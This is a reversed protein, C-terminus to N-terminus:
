LEEKEDALLSQELKQRNYQLCYWGGLRLLEDHTGSELVQGDELVIIQHAHSVASLRHTAILTTRGERTRRIQQLIAQETRADVASLADDLILIEPDILLARAIGIRQKQGGSLSVGNEGIITDLGDQMRAIDHQLAALEVAAAIEQETADPKGLAINQRITGSLLLHEQPVYGIWGRISDLAIQEISVGDILLTGEPIPYQRLLQKLLTSKGSGTRGVIGLTEGRHVALSLGRLSDVVAGPYRFTLGRFEVRQPVRPRLPAPVDAVEQPQELNDAIRNVSANGRQLINIFEGFAIMPWVLMTLYINFTVLQGLTIENYFVLFSGYGIGVAFSVGVIISVAPQFLANIFAVKINKRMVEGTVRDFAQIDQEEQVYSRLVRMGSITELVHDNMEGFSQQAIIFRSRMALGLRNIALALLPLPLLAAVMLKFSVFWIMSFMVIASVVITNVLTLVGFGATNSVAQIDNSALAMLEGSRNRQFFSPTMRTWHRFLRDRLQKDLLVSSGFLLNNWLYICIYMSIAILLLLGVTHWLSERSLTGAQMQDITHGVLRPTVSNLFSTASMLIVTLVYFLWRERFFWSLKTLFPM